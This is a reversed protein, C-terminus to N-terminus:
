IMDYWIMDYWIMDYWIMDYWIMDYCILDFLLINGSGKLHSATALLLEKLSDSFDTSKM